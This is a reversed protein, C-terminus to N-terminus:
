HRGKRRGRDCPVRGVESRLALRSRRVTRDVSRRSCRRSTARFRTPKRPAGRAKPAASAALRDSKWTKAKGDGAIQALTKGTKASEPHEELDYSPDVYEDRDKILLWPEGREGARPKIKVLSFMGHLKKGRMVFKIKGNAIEAVPDTGEALKYTGEDWVIVEGAGYNGKPIM